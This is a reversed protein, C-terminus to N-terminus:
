HRGDMEASRGTKELARVHTARARGGSATYTVLELMSVFVCSIAANLCFLDAIMEGKWSVKRRQVRQGTREAREETREASRM